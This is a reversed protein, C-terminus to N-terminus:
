PPSVLLKRPNRYMAGRNRVPATLKEIMITPELPVEYGNPHVPWSGLGVLSRIEPRSYYGMYTLNLLLTFHATNSAELAKVMETTVEGGMKVAASLLGTLADSLTTDESARSVVFDGVGVTGASPIKKEPNAPILEDLIDDLLNRHQQLLSKM